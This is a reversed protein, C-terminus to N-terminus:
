FRRKNQRPAEILDVLEFKGIGAADNVSYGKIKLALTIIALIWGIVAIALNFWEPLKILEIYAYLEYIMSFFFGLFCCAMTRGAMKYINNVEVYHNKVKGVFNKVGKVRYYWSWIYMMSEHLSYGEYDFDYENVEYEGVFCIKIFDLCEGIELVENFYEIFALYEERSSDADCDRYKILSSCVSVIQSGLINHKYYNGFLYKIDNLMTNRCTMKDQHQKYIADITCQITFRVEKDIDVAYDIKAHMLSKHYKFGCINCQYGHKRIGSRNIECRCNECVM